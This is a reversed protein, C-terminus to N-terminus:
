INIGCNIITLVVDIEELNGDINHGCEGTSSMVRAPYEYPHGNSCM